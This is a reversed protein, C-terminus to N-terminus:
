PMMYIVFKNCSECLIPFWVIIVKAQKYAITIFDIHLQNFVTTRFNFDSRKKSTTQYLYTGDMM